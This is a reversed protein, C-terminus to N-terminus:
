TWPDRTCTRQSSWKRYQVTCGWPQETVVQKYKKIGEGGRGDRLVGEWGDVMLTSETDMIRNTRRTQKIQKKSDITSVYTNIAM